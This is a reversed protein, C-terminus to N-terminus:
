SQVEMTMVPVGFGAVPMEEVKMGDPAILGSAVAWEFSHLLMQEIAERNSEDPFPKNSIIPTSMPDIDRRAAIVIIIVVVFGAAMLTPTGLITGKARLTSKTPTKVTHRSLAMSVMMRSEHIGISLRTMSRLSRTKQICRAASLATVTGICIAKQEMMVAALCKALLSM